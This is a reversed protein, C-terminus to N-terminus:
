FMDGAISIRYCKRNGDDHRSHMTSNPRQDGALQEALVTESMDANYCSKVAKVTLFCLLEVIAHAPKRLLPARRVDLGVGGRMKKDMELGLSNPGEIEEAWPRHQSGFGVAKKCLSSVGDPLSRAIGM